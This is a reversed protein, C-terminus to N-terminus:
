FNWSIEHNKKYKVIEEFPLFDIKLEESLTEVSKIIMNALIQYDDDDHSENEFETLNIYDNMNIFFHRKIRKLFGEKNIWIPYKKIQNYISVVDDVIHKRKLSLVLFSLYNEVDSHIYEDEKYNYSKKFGDLWFYYEKWTDFDLYQKMDLADKYSFKNIVHVRQMWFNDDGCLSNIYKSVQCVERLEHDTLQMLILFDTQKNGSLKNM